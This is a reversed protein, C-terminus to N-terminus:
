RVAMADVVANADDITVVAHTADDWGMGYFEYADQDVEVTVVDDHTSIVTAPMAATTATTTATAILTALAIITAALVKWCIAHFAHNAWFLIRAALDMDQWAYESERYREETWDDVWQEGGDPAMYMVDRGDDSFAIALGDDERVIRMDFHKGLITM